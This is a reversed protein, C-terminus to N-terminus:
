YLDCKIRKMDDYNHQEVSKASYDFCQFLHCYVRIFLMMFHIFYYNFIIQNLLNLFLLLSQFTM